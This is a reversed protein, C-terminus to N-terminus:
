SNRLFTIQASDPLIARLNETPGSYVFFDFDKEFTDQVLAEIEYIQDAIEEDLKTIVAWLHVVEEMRWTVIAAVGEVQSVRLEYLIEPSTYEVGVKEGIEYESSEIWTEPSLLLVDAEKEIQGFRVSERLRASSLSTAEGTKVIHTAWRVLTSSVFGTEEQEDSTSVVRRFPKKGSEMGLFRSALIPPCGTLGEDLPEQTTGTPM